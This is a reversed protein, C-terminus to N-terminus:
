TGNTDQIPIPNAECIAIYARLAALRLQRVQLTEEAVEMADHAAILAKEDELLAELLLMTTPEDVMPKCIRRKM